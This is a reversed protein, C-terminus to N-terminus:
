WETPLQWIEVRNRSLFPIAIRNRKSDVGLDAGEGRLLILDSIQGDALLQVASDVQSVVLLRSGVFEIGDRLGGPSPGIVSVALSDPDWALLSDGEWPAIVFRHSPADWAIGNPALLGPGAIAISADDGLVKYIRSRGTDTIYLAGDPSVAVDNLFGPGLASLDIYRIQAGTHRDFGHLSELDVVWLTDGVITMGRPAHLPQRTTGIAFRGSRLDGSGTIQSIFGNGDRASGDGNFNSVFYIDLEPDYRVSEPGDLGDVALVFASASDLLPWGAQPQTSEEDSPSCAFSGALLLVTIAHFRTRPKGVTPPASTM